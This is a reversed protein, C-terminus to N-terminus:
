GRLLIGVAQLFSTEPLVRYRVLDIKRALFSRRPMRAFAGLLQRDASSLRDGYRELLEQAQAASHELDDRFKAKNRLSNAIIAPLRNLTMRSDGAGVSNSAHQRYLVTAERVAVIRGLAAAVLGFWYDQYRAVAPTTGIVNCLAANLMLTPAAVLNRVIQRRLTAPEPDYSTLTWFSEHIVNLDEDVVILDTHVLIPTEVSGSAEAKRMTELTREMKNPLWIDDADATMVYRADRQVRELLWGYAGAIGLRPGGVHILHVRADGTARARMIDVSADSSGDDRMWLRWDRHTQRQMSDLFESLFREGNLVSCIVDITSSM